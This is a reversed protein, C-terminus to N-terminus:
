ARARHEAPLDGDCYFGVSLHMGYDEVVRWVAMATCAPRGDQQRFHNTTCPEAAPGSLTWGEARRRVRVRPGESDISDTATLSIDTTM